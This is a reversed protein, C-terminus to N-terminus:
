EDKGGCADCSGDITKLMSDLSQEAMKQVSRTSQAVMEASAAAANFPLLVIRSLMKTMEM